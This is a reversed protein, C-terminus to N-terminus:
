GTCYPAQMCCPSTESAAGVLCEMERSEGPEVDKCLNSVDTGCASYLSYDTRYDEVAQVCAPSFARTLFFAIQLIRRLPGQLM